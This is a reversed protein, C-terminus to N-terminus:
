VSSKQHHHQAVVILIIGAVVAIDAINGILTGIRIFDITTGYLLRDISNSTGGSLILLLGPIFLCRRHIIERMMLVIVVILVFGSLAALIIPSAPIWIFLNTNHLSEIGIPGWSLLVTGSPLQAVFWKISQDIILALLAAIGSGLLRHM